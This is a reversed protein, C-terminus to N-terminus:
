SACSLPEKAASRDRLVKMLHAAEASVLRWTDEVPPLPSVASIRELSQVAEFLANASLNAASGKLAHAEARLEEAHSEGIARAMTDLRVPCDELFAAIVDAMLETDGCLRALLEAADFPCAPQQEVAAFLQHPVIPKSLYGDMGTELCRERDGAMAHATMAVIRVHGGSARERARIAITAELGSIMPMQLDMLVVEFTEHALRDLADAGDPAITVDHGRRALLGAAVRQNVANDEVLLIRVARSPAALAAPPPAMREATGSEAVDFPLVVHFTSGAGSESDVWIRGGM